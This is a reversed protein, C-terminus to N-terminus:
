ACRWYIDLEGQTRPDERHVVTGAVSPVWSWVAYRLRAPATGVGHAFRGAGLQIAFVADHLNLGYAALYMEPVLAGAPRPGVELFVLEGTDDRRFLELHYVGDSAGLATLVRASLEACPGYLPEDPDLAVSGLVRGDLFEANPHTYEGVM